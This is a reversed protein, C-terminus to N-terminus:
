ERIVWQYTNSIKEKRQRLTQFPQNDDNGAFLPLQVVSNEAIHCLEPLEYGL